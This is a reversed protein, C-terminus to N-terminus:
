QPYTVTVSDVGNARSSTLGRGVTDYTHSELIKGDSDRVATIMANTDYEFSVTTTDPKTVKILRGQADYTYSLSIGVDSTISTVLSSSPDAYGFNLHRLAADTVTVLRQSSDYTLQTTNGNRDIIATLAGTTGDFLRKTGDKTTLTWNPSGKTITTTTDDAPAATTYATPPGETSMSFWWVSGDSRAYKLYADSSTFILREEYTSRWGNGFMFPYSRQTASLVSNWMRALSLGGGLGPVNVDSENIYTNGTTLNIPKGAAACSACFTEPAAIPAPGCKPRPAVCSEGFPIGGPNCCVMTTPANPDPLSNWSWYYLCDASYRAVLQNYLPCSYQGQAHASSGVLCFVATVVFIRAVIDKNMKM